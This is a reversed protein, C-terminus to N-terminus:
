GDNYYPDSNAQLIPSEFDSQCIGFSLFLSPEIYRSGVIRRPPPANFKITHPSDYTLRPM